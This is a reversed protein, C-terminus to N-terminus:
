GVSTPRLMELLGEVEQQRVGAGGVGALLGGRAECSGKAPEVHGLPFDTNVDTVVSRGHSNATVASTIWQEAIAFHIGM